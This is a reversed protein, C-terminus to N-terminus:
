CPELLKKLTKVSIDLNKAAMSLNKNFKFFVKLSYDKKLEGLTLTKSVNSEDFFNNMALLEDDISCYSIKESESLAVKKEIHGKLQRINGPWNLKKYFAILKPTFYVKYKISMLDILGELKHSDEKLSSLKIKKGSSIRFYFDKRMMGKSVLDDLSSGSACIIRTDVHHKQTSGVPTVYFDELFLLLKTQMEINLSDIEDLFLTGGKATRLAGVKDNLAGTFSGKVHGFLESEILSSSFSCLNVHVFKGALSSRNHIQEAIYSKGVGTEGEILVPVKSNILKKSLGLKELSCAEFSRKDSRLFELQHYGIECIDKHELFAEFVFSGNLKFPVGNLSKFMFRKFNKGNRGVTEMLKLSFCLSEKQISEIHVQWSNLCDTKNTFFDYGVRKLKIIKKKGSFPKFVVEDELRIGEDNLLDSMFCLEKRMESEGNKLSAKEFNM